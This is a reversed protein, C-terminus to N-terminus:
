MDVEEMRQHIADAIEQMTMHRSTNCVKIVNEDDYVTWNNQGLSCQYVTWVEGSNRDYFIEIYEPSYAGYNTTAGSAKRLGKIKLGHTNITTNGDERQPLRHTRGAGDLWYGLAEANRIFERTQQVSTLFPRTGAEKVEDVEYLPRGTGAHTLETAHFTYGRFKYEKM